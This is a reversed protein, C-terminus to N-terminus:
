KVKLTGGGQQLMESKKWHEGMWCVDLASAAASLYWQCQDGIM